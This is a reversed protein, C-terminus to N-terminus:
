KIIFTDCNTNENNIHVGDAVCTHNSNYFCNVAKCSIDNSTTFDNSSVNTLSGDGEAFTACRTNSSKSAHSGSITIGGAYCAGHNNHICNHASCNLTM